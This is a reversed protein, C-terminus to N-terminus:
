MEVFTGPRSMIQGDAEVMLNSKERELAANWTFYLQEERGILAQEFEGHHKIEILMERKLERSFEEVQIEIDTERLQVWLAGTGGLKQPCSCFAYVQPHQKLYHVVQSKIISLGDDSHYGKGHIIQIFKHDSFNHIHHSIHLCIDEVKMGHLDLSRITTQSKNILKSIQDLAYYHRNKKDNYHSIVDEGSLDPKEILTFDKFVPDHKVGVDAHRSVQLYTNKIKKMWKSLKYYDINTENKIEKLTDDFAQKIIETISLSYGFTEADAEAMALAALVHESIRAGVMKTTDKEKQDIKKLYGM